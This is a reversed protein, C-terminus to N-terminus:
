CVDMGNSRIRCMLLAIDRILYHEDPIAKGADVEEPFEEEREQM